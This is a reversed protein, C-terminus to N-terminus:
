IALDRRKLFARLWEYGACKDRNWSAPVTIANATAFEYSLKRSEPASLGYHMKSATIIYDTLM